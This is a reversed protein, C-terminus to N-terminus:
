KEFLEEEKDKERGFSWCLCVFILNNTRGAPKFCFFNYRRQFIISDRLLIDYQLLPLLCINAGCMM